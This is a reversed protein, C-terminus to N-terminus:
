LSRTDDRRATRFLRAVVGGLSGAWIGRRVEALGGNMIVIFGRKLGLYGMVRELSRVGPAGLSLKIEIPILEGRLKLLLDAEVGTQTRFFYAEAAPDELRALDVIQEICFTEFSAGAKPHSLLATKRFPIGLLHHLIGTDRVYLKPSKVLRKGLNAHYPALRRVLFTGEFIDLIHSVSHYDIGLSGGLQSLDSISGQSHALMSLLRTMKLSSMRFGLQPIDQELCTRLFAPLWDQPAARPRSWHLRPFAGKIWLRELDDELISIGGLELFGTRGALSESIDRILKPSASGLLVVKHSPHRDIHSRLLPFLAPLRQAEDIIIRRSQELILQGDTELRLLTSPDELDFADFGPLAWRAFTSKGVQRLGLLTVIPFQRLLSDLRARAIRPHVM